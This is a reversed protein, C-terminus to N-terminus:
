ARSNRRYQPGSAPASGASRSGARTGVRHVNSVGFDRNEEFWSANARGLDDAGRLDDGGMTLMRFSSISRIPRAKAQAPALM